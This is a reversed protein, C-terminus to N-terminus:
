LHRIKLNSIMTVSLIIVFILVIYFNANLLILIPFIFGNLTIPTGTFYKTAEKKGKKSINYRSLRLVGSAVFFLLLIGLYNIQFKMFVLFAVSVGFTIADAFSDLQVGIESQQKLWRAVKGDLYDFFMGLLIFISAIIFENLFSFYISLLGCFLNLLTVYDAVKLKKIM